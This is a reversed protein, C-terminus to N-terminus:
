SRFLARPLRSYGGKARTDANIATLHESAAGGKAERGIVVM